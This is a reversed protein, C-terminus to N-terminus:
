RHFKPLSHRRCCPSVTSPPPRHRMPVTTSMPHAPVAIFVFVFDVPFSSSHCFDPAAARTQIFNSDINIITHDFTCQVSDLPTPHQTSSNSPTPFKSTSRDSVLFSRQRPVAAATTATQPTHVVPAVVAIRNTCHVRHPRSTTRRRSHAVDALRSDSMEVTLSLCTSQSQYESQGSITHRCVCLRKHRTSRNSSPSSVPACTSCYPSM